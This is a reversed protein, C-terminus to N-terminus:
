TLVNSVCSELDHPIKNLNFCWVLMETSLDTASEQIKISELVCVLASHLCGM